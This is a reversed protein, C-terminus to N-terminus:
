VQLIRAPYRLTDGAEDVIRGEYYMGGGIRLMFQMLVSGYDVIIDEREIGVVDAREEM